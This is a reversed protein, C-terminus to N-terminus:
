RPRPTTTPRRPYIYQGLGDLPESPDRPSFRQLHDNVSYRPGVELRGGRVRTFFRDLPRPPPGGTRIGRFDYVGGHCPCIFSGSAEAFRVPCGVHSCRSTLVVYQNWRDGPETDILANRRRVYITTKGAEGADPVLTIVAPLYTEPNFDGVAGVDQWRTPEQQEFAPGLAFGLSPLGIAATAIGGTALAGRTFLRRRTVTEGEYAGPMDHDATLAPRKESSKDEIPPTHDDAKM